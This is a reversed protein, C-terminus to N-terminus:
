IAPNPCLYISQIALANALLPHGSQVAAILLGELLPCIPNVGGFLFGIHATRPAPATTTASASAAPLAIASIAAVVALATLLM